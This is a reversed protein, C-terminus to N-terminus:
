LELGLADALEAIPRAEVQETYEAFELEGLETAVYYEGIVSDLLIFCVSIFENELEENFGKIYIVLENTDPDILHFYVDDRTLTIDGFDIKVESDSPQRFAILEFKELEPASEYLEMVDDFSEVMGDASLIFERKGDILEHSFEYAFDKNMKQLRSYLQNMNKELNDEDLQFYTEENETFWNWFVEYKNKRNRFWGM